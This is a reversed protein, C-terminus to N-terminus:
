LINRFQMRHEVSGTGLSFTKKLNGQAEGPALPGRLRPESVSLGSVHPDAFQVTVAQQCSVKGKQNVARAPALASFARGGFKGPEELPLPRKEWGEGVLESIQFCVTKIFVSGM